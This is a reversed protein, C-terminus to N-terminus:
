SKQKDGVVLEKVVARARETALDERQVIVQTRDEVAEVVEARSVKVKVGVM